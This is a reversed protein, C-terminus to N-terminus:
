SMSTSIDCVASVFLDACAIIQLHAICNPEHSLHAALM